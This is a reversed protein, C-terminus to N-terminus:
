APWPRRIGWTFGLRFGLKTTYFEVAALVDSVALAAHQQECDVEPASPAPM